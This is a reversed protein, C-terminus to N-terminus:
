ALTADIAYSINGAQDKAVVTYHTPRATSLGTVTASHSTSYTAEFPSWVNYPASSGADYPAGAAAFGLAPKDTTWTVQMSTSSLRTAVVNTILPPTTNTDTAGPQALTTGYVGGVASGQLSNRRIWYILDRLANGTIEPRPVSGGMGNQIYTALAADTPYSQVLDDISPFVGTHQLGRPGTTTILTPRSGWPFSGLAVNNSGFMVTTGLEWIQDGQTWNPSIGTGNVVDIAPDSPQRVRWSNPSGEFSIGGLLFRGQTRSFAVCWPYGAAGLGEALYNANEDSWQASYSGDLSGRWYIETASAVIFDDVPGCVGATDVDGWFWAAPHPIGPTHFRDVVIIRSVTQAVLDILRVCSTFQECLVIKTGSSTLRISSDGCVYAGAFHTAAVPSYLGLNGLATASNAPVGVTGFLTSVTSGDSSIKRILMNDSNAVYMTGDTAMCISYPGSFTASLAAGNASGAVGEQGAYITASPASLLNTIKAIFNYEVNAVYITNGTRDRPDFCADNWGAWNTFTKTGISLQRTALEAATLSVDTWDWWVKTRDGVLGALTTVNGTHDMKFIRGSLTVGLWTDHSSSTGPFEVYTVYPNIYNDDRGGDIEFFNRSAAFADSADSGAQTNFLQAFIGGQRTTQFILEGQYQNRLPRSVGEVYWLTSTDPNRLTSSNSGTIVRAPYAHTANHLPLSGPGPFQIRDPIPSYPHTIRPVSSLPNNATWGTMPVTQAGNLAGHNQVLVILQSYKVNYAPLGPNNSDVIRASVVHTGDTVTTTDWTYSFPPATFYNGTPVGDVLWQMTLSGNAPLPGGGGAGYAFTGIFTVTGSVVNGTLYGPTGNLSPAFMVCGNRVDLGLQFPFPSGILTNSKVAGTTYAFDLPGFSQNTLNYDNFELPTSANAYVGGLVSAVATHAIVTDYNLVADGGDTEYSVLYYSSGALLTIPQALATYAFKGTPQGAANITAAGGPVGYGTKADVIKVVHSQSNGAIIWRGLSTVSLNSAGITIQM